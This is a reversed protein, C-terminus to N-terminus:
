AYTGNERRVNPRAFGRKASDEKRKEREGDFRTKDFERIAKIGKETIVLNEGERVCWKNKLYRRIITSIQRPDPRRTKSSPTGDHPTMFHTYVDVNFPKGIRSYFRMIRLVNWEHLNKM